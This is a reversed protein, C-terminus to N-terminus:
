GKKPPPRWRPFRNPLSVTEPSIWCRCALIASKKRCNPPQDLARPREPGMSRWPKHFSLPRTVLRVNSKAGPTLLTQPSIRNAIRASSSSTWLGNKKPPLLLRHGDREPRSCLILSGQPPSRGRPEVRLKEGFEEH